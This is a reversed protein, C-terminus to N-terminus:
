RTVNPTMEDDGLVTLKDMRESVGWCLSSKRSLLSNSSADKADSECENSSVMAPGGFLTPVRGTMISLFSFLSLVLERYHCTRLVRTANRGAGIRRFLDAGM